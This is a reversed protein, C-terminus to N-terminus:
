NRFRDPTSGSAPASTRSWANVPFPLPHFAVFEMAERGFAETFPEFRRRYNPRPIRITRAKRQRSVQQFASSAYGVPERLYALIHLRRAQPALTDRMDRLDAAGLVTMEEGSIVLNRESSRIEDMLIARIKARRAAVEGPGIGRKTYYPHAAPDAAFATLMPVSHNAPGLRAYRTTGDTFDKLGAQITTSATKHMGVHLFITDKRTM